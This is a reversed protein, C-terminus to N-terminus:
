INDIIIIIIIIIHNDDNETNIDVIIDIRIIIRSVSFFVDIGSSSLSGIVIVIITDDYNDYRCLCRCGNDL